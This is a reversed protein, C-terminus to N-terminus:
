RMRLAAVVAIAVNCAPCLAIFAYECCILSRAWDITVNHSQAPLYQCFCWAFRNLEIIRICFSAFFCLACIMSLALHLSASYITKTTAMTTNRCHVIHMTCHATHSLTSTLPMRGGCAEHSNREHLRSVCAVFADNAAPQGRVPGGLEGACAHRLLSCFPAVMAKGCVACRVYLAIIM